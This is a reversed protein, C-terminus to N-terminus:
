KKPPGMKVNLMYGGRSPSLFRDFSLIGGGAAGWKLPDIQHISLLFCVLSGGASGRAPGIPIGCEAAYNVIDAMILFYSSFRKEMIRKLEIEAQRKHTVEQGDMMYVKESKDLGKDVLAQAVQLRLKQDANDIAPLKPSLDPSFTDCRDAVVLTNDCFGEFEQDSVEASYGDTKFTERLEERTKLYLEDSDICFLDKHNVHRNQDVAMLVKQLHFDERTIYHVDNTLVAPIRSGRAIAALCAFLGQSEEINKGPMQMELYFNDGFISEFNKMTKTASDLDNRRLEHSIPGNLCGSLLILGDRHKDLVDAWIRPKYYFGESWAVEMIRLLNRYGVMNKCLVTVHRNKRIREALEPEEKKVQAFKIGNKQKELWEPHKGNFYVECGAIYKIGLDRAAFFADPVNAMNGHDTFAIAKWDHEQCKKMLGSPSAVGDLPSFHTHVHLHCFPETM